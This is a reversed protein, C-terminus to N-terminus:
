QADKGHGSGRCTLDYCLTPHQELLYISFLASTWRFYWEVLVRFPYFELACGYSRPDNARVAPFCLCALQPTFVVYKCRFTLEAVTEGYSLLYRIFLFNHICRFQNDRTQLEWGSYSCCRKLAM